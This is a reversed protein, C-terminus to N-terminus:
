ACSISRVRAPRRGQVRVKPSIWVVLAADDLRIGKEFVHAHRRGCRTGRAVCGLCRLSPRLPCPRRVHFVVDGGADAELVGGRALRLECVSPCYAAAPPLMFIRLSAAELPYILSRGYADGGLRGFMDGEDVGEEYTRASPVAWRPRASPFAGHKWARKAAVTRRRGVAVLAASTQPDLRCRGRACALLPALDRTDSAEAAISPGYPM